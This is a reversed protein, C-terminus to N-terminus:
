CDVSSYVIESTHSLEGKLFSEKDTIEHIMDSNKAAGLHRFGKKAERAIMEVEKLKKNPVEQFCEDKLITLIETWKGIM